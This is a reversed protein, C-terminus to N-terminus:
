SVIRYCLEVHVRFSLLQTTKVTKHVTVWKTTKCLTESVKRRKSYNDQREIEEAEKVNSLWILCPNWNCVFNLTCFSVCILLQPACLRTLLHLLHMADGCSQTVHATRELKQKLYQMFYTTVIIYVFKYQLVKPFYNCIKAALMRGGSFILNM